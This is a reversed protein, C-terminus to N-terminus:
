YFVRKDGDLKTLRAADCYELLQLAYKRSTNLDDRLEALTISGNTKIREKIKDVVLSLTQTDMYTQGNLRTIRGENSLAMILQRCDNKDKRDRLLEELEPAEFASKKYIDAFEDMMKQQAKTYSVSFGSACVTNTEWKVSGTDAMYEILRELSKADKVRLTSSLKNRFEEKPLGPSLPFKEHYDGLIKIAVGHVQEAYDNHIFVHDSLQIVRGSSIMAGCHQLAEQESMGVQKALTGIMPFNKSQEKIIQELLHFDDGTEKITLANLVSSDGLKHKGPNADLVTGGGITEMPSYYRVVFFDGQKVAISEELRLQAYCSEGASLAEKDLLVAKCLTQASGYYLHLRSGTNIKRKTGDVVHLKVDIMRAPKLSKPAAVVQGRDLEEKKINVLNVATRQGAFAAEVMKGHVQLNRVKAPKEVPYVTVEQGTRIMGEVLTGTIVTGFGGITFVRDIPIRLLTPNNNRGAPVKVMEFIMNRLRDMNKGTQSSVAIAEANELFSGKVAKRIDATVMDLWEEEVLDEKTIVIIGRKINLLKLIDLHELTQPMVGEDAAVVLLVMDIGGIGSLMNRIFKEHGPVDIIGIDTGDPATMDAFGLEITIGRQKEEKLRDTDIGTLARILCTKGHDVHGATGVIVNNM